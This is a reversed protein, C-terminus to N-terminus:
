QKSTFKPLKYISNLSHSFHAWIVFNSTVYDVTLHPYTRTLELVKIWGELYHVVGTLVKFIIGKHDKTKHAVVFHELFQIIFIVIGCM